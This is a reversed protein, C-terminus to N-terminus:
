STILSELRSQEKKAADIESSDKYKEILEDYCNKAKEFESYAEYATAMKKLYIPSFYKNSNHHAAKDYYSAANSFEELEMYTDGILSYARSQVLLDSTSFDSLYILAVRYNGSKLNIVGAYFNALNSADTGPYEDIIDIFGYNNGDGNLALTLSDQEFYFVAQFMDSQALENQNEQYYNYVFFASIAVAILGGIWMVWLKNASIFEETKTIKEALVEPNEFFEEREKKAVKKKSRGSM